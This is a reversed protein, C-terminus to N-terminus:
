RAVVTGLREMVLTIDEPGRQRVSEASEGLEIVVLLFTDDFRSLLCPPGNSDGAEGVLASNKGAASLYDTPAARRLSPM